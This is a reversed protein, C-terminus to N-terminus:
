GRVSTLAAVDTWITELHTALGQWGYRGRAVRLAGDALVAAQAPRQICDVLADAMQSVHDVIVMDRGDEFALGESGVRTTVVPVGAAAAELIKLRSGGGIRLPVAMVAARALFPRVDGVNACLEVGPADRLM